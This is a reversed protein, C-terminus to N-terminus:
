GVSWLHMTPDTGTNRDLAALVAARTKGSRRRAEKELAMRSNVGRDSLILINAGNKLAKLADICISEIATELAEPGGNVPYLMSLTASRLKPTNQAKIVSMEENTLIPQKMFLAATSSENPEMINAVNGCM